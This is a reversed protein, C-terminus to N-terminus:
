LAPYHERLWELFLAAGKDVNDRWNDTANEDAFDSGYKLLVVQKGAMLAAKALAYGEMDVMDSDLEPKQRVFQDGTSLTPGAENLRIDGALAGEEFATIGLPAMPRTDMDRQRVMGIQYLQGALEPRLVGATGYNLLLRCAPMSVLRAAALAANVKGVGTYVLRLRGAELAPGYGAQRLAAEPLEAELAVCLAIM